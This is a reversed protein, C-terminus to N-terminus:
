TKKWKQNAIIRKVLQYLQQLGLTGQLAYDDLQKSKGNYLFNVHMTAHCTEDITYRPKFADIKLYNLLTLLEELQQRELKTQRKGKLKMFAKAELMAEGTRHITLDYVPCEGFCRGRSFQVTAVTHTGPQNNYEIFGEFKYVITDPPDNFPRKDSLFRKDSDIISQRLIILLPTAGSTDLGVLRCELAQTGVMKIKFRSNGADVIAFVRHDNVLLDTLGNRDIDIKLFKLPLGLSDDAFYYHQDTLGKVFRDMEAETQLEDIKNAYGTAASLICFIFLAVSMLM